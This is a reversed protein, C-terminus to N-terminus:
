ENEVQGEEIKEADIPKKEEKKIGKKEYLFSIFDEKPLPKSFYYGQIYDCLSTEFKSLIEETEVGEIVVEKKLDRIMKLSHEFMVKMEPNESATLSRDLKIMEVPMHSVNDMNSYGQGYDDLSFSFGLEKLVKINDEMMKISYEDNTETIELTISKPSIDYRKVADMIHLPLDEHMCQSVSLNVEIKELGAKKFEPSAIFKCVSDFVIDGIKHIAGNREAEPLFLTPEIEGYTDDKLRLLAEARTFAKDKVSYIPQYYVEFREQMIARKIISEMNMNIEFDKRNPIKSLELVSDLIGPIHIFNELFAFLHEASTTDEPTNVLAINSYLDVIGFDTKAPVNLRRRLTHAFAEANEHGYNMVVTAYQGRGLWYFECRQSFDKATTKMLAGITKRVSIQEKYTLKQNLANENVIKVFIISTEKHTKAAKYCDEEFSSHKKLELEPEYYDEPREFINMIVLSAIATASIEVLWDPRIHQLLLAIAELPYLVIIAFRKKNDFFSRYVIFYILAIVFYIMICAYMIGYNLLMGRQYIGGDVTFVWHTWWNAILLGLISLFPTFLLMFLWPKRYFKHWNDTIGLIYLCFCFALFVRCSFYISNLIFIPLEGLHASISFVDVVSSALGVILMMLFFRGSSTMYTRRYIVTFIMGMFLATSCIDMYVFYGDIM